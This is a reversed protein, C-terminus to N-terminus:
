GRPVAQTLTVAVLIALVAIRLLREPPSMGPWALYLVWVLFLAVVALLVWGWGPVLVGAVLVALAVLFVLVKPVRNLGAVVPRSAQELSSRLSTSM